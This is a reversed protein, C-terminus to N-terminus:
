SQSKFRLFAAVGGFANKLMQGEETESSIVEVESNTLQALDAIDDILDKKDVIIMSPAQCGKCPKGVLGKEFDALDRGKVTHEEQYGCASCKVTVRVLDLDESLLVM